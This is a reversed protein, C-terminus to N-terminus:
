KRQGETPQLRRADHASAYENVDGTLWAVFTRGSPEGEYARDQARPPTEFIVKGEPADSLTVPVDALNLAISLTEGDGLKWRAVLAKEGTLNAGLSKAGKLRPMILKARVTLASRYFHRWELRDLEDEKNAVNPSSSEFTLKDNPDPIQARRKEDSFASFNSFEKRRGNRVADALEDHYDTFFLFPQKSGYQEEMFLM